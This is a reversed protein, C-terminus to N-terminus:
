QRPFLSQQDGQEESRALQKRIGELVELAEVPVAREATIRHAFEDLRSLFRPAVEDLLRQEVLERFRNRLVSWRIPVTKALLLHLGFITLAILVVWGVLDSPTIEWVIFADYLFMLVIFGLVALPLWDCLGKVLVRTAFAQGAPEAIEQELHMLEMQVIQTLAMEGLTGQEDAPVFHEFTEIPWGRRDALALLHSRLMQQQSRRIDSPITVVARSALVALGSHPLNKVQSVPSLRLHRLYDVFNLYLAFIGRFDGRGMRSFHEELGLSHKDAAEVLLQAYDALGERLAAEWDHRLEYVKASWDPPIVEKLVTALSDIKSGIGRIKIDRVARENLGAELWRELQQFDDEITPTPSTGNVSIWQSACTRFVLPNDFGAHQLSRRFDRDPSEGTRESQYSLCRDWKNLIFAFGRKGRHELLLKWAEIDHYKEQSGVYLVADAIPLIAKLRERHERINGDMDPTDVLLKYRLEARNHRVTACQQLLPDLKSLDVSEHYYVTPRQTTPRVIGAEAVKSKALANLLTSKGVGTGGLLVVTLLSPDAQYQRIRIELQERLMELKAHATAPLPFLHDQRLWRGLEQLALELSHTSHLLGTETASSM